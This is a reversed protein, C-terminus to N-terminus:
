ARIPWVASATALDYGEEVLDVVRDNLVMEVRVQPHREAHAAIAAALHRAGFSMPANLRLVGRPEVQFSSVSREAAELEQLAASARTFFAIGAETLSQKRTTRNILRAGLRQELAQLHQGLMTRSLGLEAAAAAQSGLEVTRM